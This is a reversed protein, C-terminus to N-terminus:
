QLIETTLESFDIAARSQKKYQRISQQYKAANKIDTSIRVRTETIFDPYRNKMEEMSEKSIKDRVDYANPIIRVKPQEAPEPFFEELASFMYSLGRHSNLDTLAPILVEDAAFLANAHTLSMYPNTDIVIMDYIASIKSIANKLVKESGVKKLALTIEVNNLTLDAPLVSLLPTLEIIANDLGGEAVGGNSNLCDRLTKIEDSDGIGLNYSLQGQPDLDIALVKYGRYNSEMIFNAAHASKGVGGKANSFTKVKYRISEKRCVLESIAKYADWGLSLKHSSGYPVREVPIQYKEIFEHIERRSINFNQGIETTTFKQNAFSNAKPM